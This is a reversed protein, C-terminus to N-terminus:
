KVFILGEGRTIFGKNGLKPIRFRFIQKTGLTKEHTFDRAKDIELKKSSIINNSAKIKNKQSMIEELKTVVQQATPRENPKQDWCATYLEIYESPTNKVITERHGDMIHKVLWMDYHPDNNKTNKFPPKGSSIEWLIVGLSYVDSKKNFKYNKQEDFKNPDIYPIVGFIKSGSKSIEEIRKSLGFDGLKIKNQHVFINNSNLDCHLIEENHLCELAKSIQYAFQYKNDWILTSFNLKLYNRLSGGDAYEMVIMFKKNKSLTYNDNECTIGLFRIINEHFDVKRQLYIENIIEKVAMDYKFEKLAFVDGTNKWKARFVKGFGGYGIIKINEFQDFKFLKIYEKKIAEDLWNIWESESHYNLREM